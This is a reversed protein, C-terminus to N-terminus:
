LDELITDFFAQYESKNYCAEEVLRSVEGGQSYFVLTPLATLRLKPHSRFPHPKSPTKWDERTIKHLILVSDPVKAIMERLIPDAKVCDSCWSIGTSPDVEGCFLAFIHPTNAAQEAQLAAFFDNTKVERAM